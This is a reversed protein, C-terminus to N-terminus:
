LRALRPKPRHALPKFATFQQECYFSPMLLVVFFNNSKERYAAYGDMDDARNKLTCKGQVIM